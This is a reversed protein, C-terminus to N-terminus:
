LWVWTPFSPEPSFVLQAATLDANLPLGRKQREEASVQRPPNLTTPEQAVLLGVAVVCIGLCIAQVRRRM